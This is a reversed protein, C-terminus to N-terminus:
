AGKSSTKKARWDRHVALSAAIWLAGAAMLGAITGGTPGGVAFTAAAIAVM